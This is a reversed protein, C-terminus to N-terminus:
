RGLRIKHQLFLAIVFALVALGWLGRLLVQREYPVGRWKLAYYGILGISALAIAIGLDLWHRGAYLSVFIMPVIIFPLVRRNLLYRSYYM